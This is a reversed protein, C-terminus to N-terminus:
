SSHEPSNDFQDELQALFKELNSEAESRYRFPGVEEGTQDKFYWRNQLTYLSPRTFKSNFVIDDVTNSMFDDM